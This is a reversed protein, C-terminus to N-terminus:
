SRAVDVICGTRLWNLLLGPRTPWLYESPDFTPNMIKYTLLDLLFFAPFPGGVLPPVSIQTAKTSPAFPSMGPVGTVVTGKIHLEPSYRSSLLSASVAAHGGQSQGVIVVSKSLVPFADLAARVSDLVSYAEPRVYLWPHGGPTGLGQYDTAVIAYGQALWAYLYDTDRASRPGWSPACVDAIGTTGHAWAIPWAM